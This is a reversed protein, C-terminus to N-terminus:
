VFVLWLMAIVIVIILITRITSSENKGYRSKLKDIYISADQKTEPKIPNGGLYSIYNKQRETPRNDYIPFSSMPHFSTKKPIKGSKYTEAIKLYLKSCATADSLARHSEKIEPVLSSLKYNNENKLRRRSLDLTDIFIYDASIRLEQVLPRLFHVEFKANHTVFATFEGAWEILMNWATVPNPQGKLDSTKIGHISQAKTSIPIGPNTLQEFKDIINGDTTFKVAGMEIIGDSDPYLGTTEFDLAILISENM